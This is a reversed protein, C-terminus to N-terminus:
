LENELYKILDECEKKKIQPMKIKDKDKGLISNFLNSANVPERYKVLIDHLSEIDIEPYLTQRLQYSMYRGVEGSLLLDMLQRHPVFCSRLNAIELEEAFQELKLLDYNLNFLGMMSVKKVSPNTVLSILKKSLQRMTNFIISQKLSEPFSSLTFFTAQIYDVIDNVYANGNPSIKDTYWDINGGEHIYMDVQKDILRPIMEHMSLETQSFAVRCDDFYQIQHYENSNTHINTFSFGNKLVEDFRVCAKSLFNADLLVYCAYPIHVDTQRQIMGFLQNNVDILVKSLVDSIDKTVGEDEADKDIYELLQNMSKEVLSCVKPVLKTFSHSLPFNIDSGIKGNMEEDEIGYREITNHYETIDNVIFPSFDEDIIISTVEKQSGRIVLDGFISLYLSLSAMVADTPFNFPHSAM